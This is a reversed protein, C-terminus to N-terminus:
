ETCHSEFMKKLLRLVKQNGILIKFLGWYFFFAAMQSLNEILPSPEMKGPLQRFKPFNSPKKTDSKKDSYKPYCLISGQKINLTTTVSLHACTCSCVKLYYHSVCICVLKREVVCAEANQSM